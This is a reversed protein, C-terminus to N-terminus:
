SVCWLHILMLFLKLVQQQRIATGNVGSVGNRALVIHGPQQPRALLLRNVNPGMAGGSMTTGTNASSVVTFTVNQSQHNTPIIHMQGSPIIQSTTPTPSVDDEDDM